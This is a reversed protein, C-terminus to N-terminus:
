CIKINKIYLKYKKCAADSWISLNKLKSFDPYIYFKIGKAAGELLWGRIGLLLLVFYPFLSTFYVLKGSVKDIPFFVCFDFNLNISSWILPTISTFLHPRLNSEIFGM